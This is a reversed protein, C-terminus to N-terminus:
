RNDYKAEINLKGVTESVKFTIFYNGTEFENFIDSIFFILFM